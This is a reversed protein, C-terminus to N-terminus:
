ARSRPTASLEETGEAREDLPSLAEADSTVFVVPCTAALATRGTLSALRPWGPGDDTGLVLVTAPGSSKLLADLAPSNVLRVSHAPADDVYARAMAVARAQAQVAQWRSENFHGPVERVFVPSHLPWATVIEVEADHEQAYRLAWILAQVSPESGDVGVCVVGARTKEAPRRPEPFKAM